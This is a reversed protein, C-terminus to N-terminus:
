FFRVIHILKLLHIYNVGLSLYWTGSVQHLSDMLGQECTRNKARKEDDRKEPKCPLRHPHTFHAYFRALIPEAGM